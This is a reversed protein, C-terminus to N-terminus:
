LVPDTHNTYYIAYVTTMDKCSIKLYTSESSSSDTKLIM